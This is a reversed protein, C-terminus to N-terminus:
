SIGLGEVIQELLVQGGDAQRKSVLFKLLHRAADM